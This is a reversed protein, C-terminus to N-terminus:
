AGKIATVEIRTYQQRHGHVRRYRKRRHAKQVRIKDGKGHELVKAEVSVGAVLPTGIKVASGDSVLYVSDFHISTGVEADQLPIELISGKEVKEQFGSIEVIVFMIFRRIGVCNLSLTLSSCPFFFFSYETYEGNHGSELFDARQERWTDKEEKAAHSDDNREEERATCLSREHDRREGYRVNLLSQLSVHRALVDNGDETTRELLAIVNSM